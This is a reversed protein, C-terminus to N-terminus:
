KRKNREISKLVGVLASVQTVRKVLQESPLNELVKFFKLQGNDTKPYQLATTLSDFEEQLLGHGRENRIKEDIDM